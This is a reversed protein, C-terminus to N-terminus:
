RAWPQTGSSSRVCGPATFIFVALTSAYREASAIDRWLSEVM